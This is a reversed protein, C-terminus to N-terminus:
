IRTGSDGGAAAWRGDGSFAAVGEELDKGDPSIAMQQAYDGSNKSTRIVEAQQVDWTATTGRKGYPYALLTNEPTAALAKLRAHLYGGTFTFILNWTRTDWIWITAYYDGAALWSGDRAFCLADAEALCSTMSILPKGARPDWARVAVYDVTFLRGGDPSVFIGRVNGTVDHVYFKRSLTWDATDWIFVTGRWETALWTGDPAVTINRIGSRHGTLTARVLGSLADRIHVDGSQLAVAVWTGDPSVLVCEVPVGENSFSLSAAKRLDWARAEGSGGSYLSADDPSFYLSSVGGHGALRATLAFGECDWVYIVGDADGCALLSGGHSVALAHIPTQADLTAILDGTGTSWVHIERDASGAVWSRDPAVVVHEILSGKEDTGFADLPQGDPMTWLFVQGDEGGSVVWEGDDSIVADMSGRHPRPRGDTCYQPFARFDDSLRRGTRADWLKVRGNGTTALTEGDPAFAISWLAWGHVIEAIAAGTEKDYVTVVGYGRDLTAFLRDDPAIVLNFEYHM